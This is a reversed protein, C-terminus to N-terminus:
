IGVIKTFKKSTFIEIKNKDSGKQDSYEQRRGNLFM